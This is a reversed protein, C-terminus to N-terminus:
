CRGRCIVFGALLAASGPAVNPFIFEFARPYGVIDTEGRVSTSAPLAAIAGDLFARVIIVDISNAGYTSASFRVLVCNASNGGQTFSVQTQPINTFSPSTTSSDALSSAVFKVSTPKCAGSTEAVAISPPLIALLLAAGGCIARNLIRITIITGGLRPM